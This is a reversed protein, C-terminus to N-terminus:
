AKKTITWIGSSESYFKSIMKKRELIYGGDPIAMIAKSFKKGVVKFVINERTQSIIVIDTIVTSDGNSNILWGGVYDRKNIVYSSLVPVHQKSVDFNVTEEQTRYAYGDIKDCGILYTM